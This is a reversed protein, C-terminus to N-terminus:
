LGAREFKILLSVNSVFGVQIDDFATLEVEGAEDFAMVWFDQTESAWESTDTGRSLVHVTVQGRGDPSPNPLASLLHTAVAAEAFSLSASHLTWDLEMRKTLNSLVDGFTQPGPVLSTTDSVEAFIEPGRDCEGYNQQAASATIEITNRRQTTGSPLRIEMQVHGANALRDDLYRGNLTVVLQWRGGDPQPGLVMNLDFRNPSRPDKAHALDYRVRWTHSRHFKRLGFLSSGAEIEESWPFHPVSSSVKFTEAVDLAQETTWGQRAYQPTVGSKLLNRGALLSQSPDSADLAVTVLRGGVLAQDRESVLPKDLKLYIASTAEIEVIAEIGDDIGCPTHPGQGQLSFSVVLQERAIDQDTLQIRLSRGAEGPRLLLEARKSNGISVRLVGEVGALAQVTANIQLYGSTPRADIPMLFAASQYAPLGSLILPASAGTRRLVTGNKKASQLQAATEFTLRPGLAVESLTRAGLRLTESNTLFLATGALLFAMLGIGILRM